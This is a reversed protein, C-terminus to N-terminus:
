SSPPRSITGTRPGSCRRRGTPPSRTLTIKERLLLVYKPLDRNRVAQILRSEGEQAAAALAGLLLLVATVPIVRRKTLEM